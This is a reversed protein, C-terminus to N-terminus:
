LKRSTSSYQPVVTSHRFRTINILVTDFKNLINLVLIDKGLNKCLIYPLIEEPTIAMQEHFKVM